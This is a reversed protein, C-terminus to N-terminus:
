NEIRLDWDGPQKIEFDLVCDYLVTKFPNWCKYTIKCNFPFIINQYGIISGSRFESGSNAALSLEEVQVPMGGRTIRISVQDGNGKRFFNTSTINKKVVVQPSIPKPGQYQNKSWIGDQIIMNGNETYTYKGEGEREGMKWEGEYKSGNSWTYIGKGNPYGKRFNGTYSDVGKAEGYGHALGKKCDGKYHGQLNLVMVKCSDQGKLSSSLYALCVILIISLKKM